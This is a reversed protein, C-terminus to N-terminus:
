LKKLKLIRPGRRLRRPELALEEKTTKVEGELRNVQGSFSTNMYILGCLSIITALCFVAAVIKLGRNNQHKSKNNNTNEIGDTDYM